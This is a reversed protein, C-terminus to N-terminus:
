TVSPEGDPQMWMLVSVVLVWLILVPLFIYSIPAILLGLALPFSVYSLWRPLVGSGLASWATCAV